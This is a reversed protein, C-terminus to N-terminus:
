IPQLAIAIDLPLMPQRPFKTEGEPQKKPLLSAM